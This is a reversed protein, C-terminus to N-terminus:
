VEWNLNKLNKLNKLDKFNGPAATINEPNDAGTFSSNQSLTMRQLLNRVIHLAIETCKGYWVNQSLWGGVGGGGRVSVPGWSRPRAWIPGPPYVFNCSRIKGAEPRNCSRLDEQPTSNWFSNKVYPTKLSKMKRYKDLTRESDGRRQRSMTLRSTSGGLTLDDLM